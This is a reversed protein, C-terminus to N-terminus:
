MLISFRYKADVLFPYNQCYILLLESLTLHFYDLPNMRKKYLIEMEDQSM